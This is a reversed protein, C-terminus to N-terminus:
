AVRRSQLDSVKLKTVEDGRSEELCIMFPGRVQWLKEFDVSDGGREADEYCKIMEIRIADLSKALPQFHEFALKHAWTGFGSKFTQARAGSSRSFMDGEIMSRCRRLYDTALENNRDEQSYGDPRYYVLIWVICRWLSELDHLPNHIPKTTAFSSINDAHAHRRGLVEHSIFQM